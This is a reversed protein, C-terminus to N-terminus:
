SPAMGKRQTAVPAAIQPASAQAAQLAAEGAATIRYLRRLPRQEAAALAPDEWTSTLLGATQM